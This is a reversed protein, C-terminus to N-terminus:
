GDGAPRAAPSSAGAGAGTLDDEDLNRGRTEPAAVALWVVSLVVAIGVVVFTWTLGLVPWLVAGFLVPVLACAVRSATNAWGFGSGRLPTPYLEPVYCYVAPITIEIVLGFVLIWFLRAGSVGIMAAFAVMAASAVVASAIITWKRGV